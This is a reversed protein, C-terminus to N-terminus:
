VPAPRDRSTYARPPFTIMRRNQLRIMTANAPADSVDAGRATSPCFQGPKRPALAAPTASPLGVATLHFACVPSFTAHFVGTAPTATDLGITHPSRTNTDVATLPSGFSPM